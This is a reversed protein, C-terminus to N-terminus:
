WGAYQKPAKGHRELVRPKKSVPGADVSETQIEFEWQDGFDFLFGIRMGEALPLDGIKVDDALANDSEGALYPHDIEVTRGFRDKYSFSYLHDSDFGVSSLITAALEDLCADGRIAIRRWRHYTGVNECNNLLSITSGPIVCSLM